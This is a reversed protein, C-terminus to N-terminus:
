DKKKEDKNLTVSPPVIGKSFPFEGKAKQVVKLVMEIIVYLKNLEWDDLGCSDLVSKMCTQLESISWALDSVSWAVESVSWASSERPYFGSALKDLYMLFEDVTVLCDVVHYISLWTKNEEETLSKNKVKLMFADFTIVQDEKTKKTNKTSSSSSTSGTSSGLVVVPLVTKFMDIVVGSRLVDGQRQLHKQCTEVHTQVVAHEHRFMANDEELKEIRSTLLQICAELSAVKEEISMEVLFFFFQFFWCMLFGVFVLSVM